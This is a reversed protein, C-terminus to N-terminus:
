IKETKGVFRHNLSEEVKIVICGKGQQNETTLSLVLGERCIEAALVIGREDSVGLSTMGEVVNEEQAHGKIVRKSEM